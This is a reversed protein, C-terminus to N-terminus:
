SVRSEEGIPLDVERDGDFILLEPDILEIYVHQGSENHLRITLRQGGSEGPELTYSELEVTAGHMRIVTGDM